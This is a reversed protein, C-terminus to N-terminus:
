GFEEKYVRSFYARDQYGVQFAIEKVSMDTETLLKKAQNLRVSRIFKSTSRNTLVKLKNHLQTRSMRIAQCLETIGFEDNQLNAEIKKRVREVFADELQIAEEKAAPIKELSQYRAQLQKRIQLLNQLQITLEQEHFPKALYADAGRKLGTVRSDIDAKATLLVIPIHSTREDTKLSECVEFGTKKPMMVDSIIIDPVSEIAKDIGEQGNKAYRLNYDNELCTTLYATVDANDEIILLTNEKNTNPSTKLEASVALNPAFKVQQQSLALEANKTILLRLKFTTGVNIQSEVSITGGLLHVLEKTLALGIGTGGAKAVNDDVQYFREFIHPLDKSPIGQGTDSVSIQIQDSAIQEVAISVAGNAPTYKIANSILNAIIQRIKVLDYDMWIEQASSQLRLEIQHSQALSHFSEALYRIYNLLDGQIYNIGLENHEVKALDLLQNILELLNNGNRQILNLKQKNEAAKEKRNLQDATGLIVTLPTRFEHTIDTYLRSRFDELERLREAEKQELQINHQLQLRRSRIQSFQWIGFGILGAYIVYAVWTRYWPPLIEIRLETVEESWIGDGNAAKIRFLHKGPKLSLYSARNDTTEHEWETEIGEIYYRYKNKNPASLELAAFELTVNNQAFPLRIAETFEITQHLIQSSDEPSILQNNVELKTIKVNPVHRNDKLDKPDFVNLGNIGGFAMVGDPARAYAYTNFEEGQMGDASLYNKILKTEPHYKIIGKNSSMWLHGAEDQLVGYIVNNPLGNESNLHALEMSQMNLRHLGGGKTGIWLIDKQTQDLCLSACNDNQLDSNTSNILEFTYSDAEKQIKVIGLATGLWWTRDSAQVLNYISNFPDPLVEIKFVEEEHTKLDHTILKNNLVLLLQNSAEDVALTTAQLINSLLSKYIGVQRHHGSSDIQYLTLQSLQQQVSRSLVWFTDPATQLFFSAEMQNRQIFDNIKKLKALKGGNYFPSSSAVPQMFEQGDMLFPKHVISNQAYWHQVNLLRANLKVIGHGSTGVWINGARDKAWSSVPSKFGRM